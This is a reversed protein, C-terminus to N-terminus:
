RAVFFSGISAAGDTGPNTEHEIGETKGNGPPIAGDRTEYPDDAAQPQVGCYGGKFSHRDRVCSLDGGCDPCSCSPLSLIEKRILRRTVRGNIAGCKDYKIKM